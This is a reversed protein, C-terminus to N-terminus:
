CNRCITLKRDVAAEGPTAKLAKASAPDETRTPQVHPGLPAYNAAPAAAAPQDVHVSPSPSATNSSQAFCTSAGVLAAMVSLAITTTHAVKM